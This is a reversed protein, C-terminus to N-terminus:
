PEIVTVTINDKGGNKNAVEILKEAREIVDRQSNIIMRIEEDEVMNTLGDSCLLICNEEGLPTEFFDVKLEESVGVARTIVNKKQHNRANDPDLEGMRVMEEVLSHDTTIQKIQSPSVIYLRSDGVNATYLIGDSITAAVFTTGMGEMNQKKAEEMVERNAKLIANTLIAKPETEKENEIYQVAAELAKHSACKGGIHGGMGDAVIFLNSLNGVPMESMYFCDQNESREKGIDTIGHTKM